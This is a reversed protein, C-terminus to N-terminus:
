VYGKLELAKARNFRGEAKFISVNNEESVSFESIWRYKKV